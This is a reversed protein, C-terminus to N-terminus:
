HTTIELNKCEMAHKSQIIWADVGNLKFERIGFGCCHKAGHMYGHWKCGEDKFFDSVMIM